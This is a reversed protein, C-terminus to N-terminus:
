KKRLKDLMESYSVERVFYNDLHHKINKNTVHFQGEDENGRHQKNSYKLKKDSTISESSIKFIMICDEFYLVYWLIEFCSRKIQQINCDWNVNEPNSKSVKRNTEHNYLEQIIDDSEVDFFSKGLVRSGKIENRKLNVNRDYSLDTSPEVIYELEKLIIEVFKENVSGFKRTQLSFLSDRFKNIDM